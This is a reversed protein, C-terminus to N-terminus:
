DSQIGIFTKYPLSTSQRRLNPTGKESYRFPAMEIESTTSTPTVNSVVTDNAGNGFINDGPGHETITITAGGTPVLKLIGTGSGADANYTGGDNVADINLASADIKAVFEAVLDLPSRDSGVGVSTASGANGGGETDSGSYNITTTGDYIRLHKGVYGASVPGNFTIFKSGSVFPDQVTITTKREEEKLYNSFYNITGDDSIDSDKISM